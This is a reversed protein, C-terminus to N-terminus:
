GADIKKTTSKKVCDSAKNDECPVVIYHALYYCWNNTGYIKDDAYKRASWSDTKLWAKGRDHLNINDVRFHVTVGMDLLM